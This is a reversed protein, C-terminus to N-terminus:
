TNNTSSLPNWQLSKGGPDLQGVVARLRMIERQYTVSAQTVSPGLAVDRGVMRLTM